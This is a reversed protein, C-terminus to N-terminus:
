CRRCADCCDKLVQLFLDPDPQQDISFRSATQVTFAIWTEAERGGASMVIDYCAEFDSDKTLDRAANIADYLQELGDVRPDAFIARIEDIM